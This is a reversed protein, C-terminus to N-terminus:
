PVRSLGAAVIMEHLQPYQEATIAAGRARPKARRMGRLLILSIPLMMALGVEGLLGTAEEGLEGEIPLAVLVLVVLAVALVMVVGAVVLAPREGPHRLERREAATIPSETFLDSMRALM